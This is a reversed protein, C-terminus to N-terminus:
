KKLYYLREKEPLREIAYRLMTRPMQPDHINLFAKLQSESVRKGVERLMWGCAKHILDEKDNLLMKTITFTWESEGKYIFAFTSIIAIRREWLNKSRALKLLVTRPSALIKTEGGAQPPTGKLPLHHSYFYDGVIYHASLDVLDWNNIYKTNKLYFDVIRKKERLGQRPTTGLVTKPTILKKYKHVLILLAVLRAEHYKNKLLKEIESFTIDSYKQAIKRSEPVTIGLFKDGEGYQGKGTKFFKALILSKEDNKLKLLEKIVKSM